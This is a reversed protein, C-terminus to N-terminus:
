PFRSETKQEKKDIKCPHYQVGSASVVLWGIAQERRVQVDTCRASREKGLSVGSIFSIAKGRWGAGARTQIATTASPIQAKRDDGAFQRRHAHEAGQRRIKVLRFGAHAEGDGGIAPYAGRPEAKRRLAPAYKGCPAAPRASASGRTKRGRRLGTKNSTRGSSRGCSQRRACPAKQAKIPMTAACSTGGCRSPSAVAIM